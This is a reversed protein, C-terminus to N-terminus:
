PGAHGAGSDAAAPPSRRSVRDRRRVPPRPDSRLLADLGPRATRSATPAADPVRLCSRPAAAETLPHGTRGWTSQASLPVRNAGDASPPALSPAQDLPGTHHGQTTDIIPMKPCIGTAYRAPAVTSRDVFGHPVLYRQADHAHQEAVVYRVRAVRHDDTRRRAADELADRELDSGASTCSRLSRTFLSFM